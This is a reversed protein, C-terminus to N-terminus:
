LEEKVREKAEEQIAAEKLVFAKLDDKTRSGAFKSIKEGDKFLLLTPYGKVQLSYFSPESIM